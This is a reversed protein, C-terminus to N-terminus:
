ARVGRSPVFARVYTRRPASTLPPDPISPSPVTEDEAIAERAGRNMRRRRRLYLIGLIVIAIVFAAAAGVVGGIIAKTNSSGGGSSPTTSGTPGTSSSTSAGIIAGPGIEPSDLFPLHLAALFPHLPYNKGGASKATVPNWYNELQHPM